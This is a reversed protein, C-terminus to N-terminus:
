RATNTIEDSLIVDYPTPGENWDVEIIVTCENSTTQCATNTGPTVLYFSRTFISASGTGAHSYYGSSSITLPAAKGTLFATADIASADCPVTSPTCNSFGNLWSLGQSLNNDITNRITEMSEQALYSAIMQDRSALAGSLGKSAVVLPGAVAIMLVTIAVLTEIITFGRRHIRNLRSEEHSHNHSCFKKRFFKM